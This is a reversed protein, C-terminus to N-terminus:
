TLILEDIIRYVGYGDLLKCQKASMEKRFDYNYLINDFYKYDLANYYGINCICGTSEFNKVFEIQNDAYIFAITPIGCSCLEYLTNGGASVAIDCNSMIEAINNPSKYLTIHNREFEMSNLIEINNFAPGVIIHYNINQNSLKNTLFKTLELTMNYRDSGGTTILINHITENVPKIITQRFEKRLICYKVSLLYKKNSNFNYNINKAGIATNIIIDVSYDFLNLDDIYVLKKTFQRFFEFFEKNVSYDDIIIFDYQLDSLKNQLDRIETYKFVKFNKTKLFDIGFKYRSAFQVSINRELMAEALAVCRMVHGMGIIDNGDALFFAKM